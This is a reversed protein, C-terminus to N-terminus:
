QISSNSTNDNNNNPNINTNAFLLFSSHRSIVATLREPPRNSRMARNRGLLSSPAYMYRRNLFTASPPSIGGGGQGNRTVGKFLCSFSEHMENNNSQRQLRRHRLQAGTEEQQELAVARRKATIEEDTGVAAITSTVATSPLTITAVALPYDDGAVSGSDTVVVVGVDRPPPPPSDVGGGVVMVAEPPSTSCRNRGPGEEEKVGETVVVEEEEQQQQQMMEPADTSSSFSTVPSELPPSLPEVVVLPNSADDDDELSTSPEQQQQQQVRKPFTKVVGCLKLDSFSLSPYTAYNSSYDRPEHFPPLPLM